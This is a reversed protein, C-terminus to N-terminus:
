AVRRASADATASVAASIKTVVAARLRSPPRDTSAWHGVESALWEAEEATLALRVPVGTIKSLAMLM